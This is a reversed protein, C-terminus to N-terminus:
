LFIVWVSLGILIAVAIAVLALALKGM